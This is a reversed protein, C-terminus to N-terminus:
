ADAVDGLTLQWLPIICQPGAHILHCASVPDRKARPLRQRRYNFSFGTAGRWTRRFRASRCCGNLPCRAGTARGSGTLSYVFRQTSRDTGTKRLQISHREATCSRSAARLASVARSAPRLRAPVRRSPNGTGSGQPGAGRCRVARHSFSVQDLRSSNWPGGRAPWARGNHGPTRFEVGLRCRHRPAARNTWRTRRVISPWFIAPPPASCTLSVVPTIAPAKTRSGPGASPGSSSASPGSGPQRYPSRGSM